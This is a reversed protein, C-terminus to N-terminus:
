SMCFCDTPSQPCRSALNLVAARISADKKGWHREFFSGATLKLFHYVRVKIKSSQYLGFAELSNQPNAQPCLM